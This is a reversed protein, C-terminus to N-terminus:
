CCRHLYLQILSSKGQALGLRRSVAATMKKVFKECVDTTTLGELAQKGGCAEIFDLIGGITIGLLAFIDRGWGDAIGM